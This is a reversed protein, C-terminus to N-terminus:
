APSNVPSHNFPTFQVRHRQRRLRPHRPTEQRVLAPRRINEQAEESADIEKRYCKRFEDWRAPDHGFWQRLETSPALPKIWDDLAAAEKSIGRPWIRDVLVRYGDTNTAKDYARKINITM